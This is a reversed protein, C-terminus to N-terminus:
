VAARIESLREKIDTATKDLGDALSSIEWLADLHARLEDRETVVEAHRDPSVWGILAAAEEVLAGSMYVAGEMDVHHGTDLVGHSTDSSGSFFCKGPFQAYEGIFKM